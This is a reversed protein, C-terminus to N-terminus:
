DVNMRLRLRVESPRSINDSNLMAQLTRVVPSLLDGWPRSMLEFEKLCRHGFNSLFDQLDLNSRLWHEAEEVSSQCFKEEFDPFKKIQDAVNQLGKPVGASEVSEPFCENNVTDINM